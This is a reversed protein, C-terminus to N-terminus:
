TGSETAEMPSLANESQTDINDIMTSSPFSLYTETSPISNLLSPLTNSQKGAPLLSHSIGEETVDMPLKANQFQRERAEKVMGEETVEMPLEAKEPQEPIDESKNESVSLPVAEGTIPLFLKISYPLSTKSDSETVM